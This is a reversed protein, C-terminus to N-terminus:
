SAKVYGFQVGALRAKDSIKKAADLKKYFDDRDKITLFRCNLGVHQNREARNDDKRRYKKWYGPEAMMRPYKEPRAGIESMIACFPPTFESDTM